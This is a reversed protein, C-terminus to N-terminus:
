FPDRNKIVHTASDLDLTFFISFMKKVKIEMGKTPVTM